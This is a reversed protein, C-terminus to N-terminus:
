NKKVQISSELVKRVVLIIYPISLSTVVSFLWSFNISDRLPLKMDLQLLCHISFLFTSGFLCIITIYLWSCCRRWGISSPVIVRCDQVFIQDLSFIASTFFILTAALLAIATLFFTNRYPDTLIAIMTVPLHYCVYVNVANIVSWICIKMIIRKLKEPSILCITGVRFTQYVINPIPMNNQPLKVTVSAVMSSFLAILLSIPTSLGVKPIYGESSHYCNAESKLFTAGVAGDHILIFVFFFASFTAIAWIFSFTPTESAFSTILTVIAERVKCSIFIFLIAMPWILLMASPFFLNISLPFKRPDPYPICGSYCFYNNSSEVGCVYGKAQSYVTNSINRKPFAEKVQMYIYLSMNFVSYLDLRIMIWLDHCSKSESQNYHAPHM